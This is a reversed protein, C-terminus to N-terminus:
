LPNDAYDSEPQESPPDMWPLADGPEGTFEVGELAEAASTPQKDGGPSKRAGPKRRKDAKPEPHKISSPDMNTFSSQGGRFGLYATGLPGNRQKGIIIEAIGKYESDPNYVEDRYVFMIVDADQEIAGSDRLDSNVPRKNPRQELSRSLQSLVIIPIGLLKALAKLGRTIEALALTPNGAHLASFKMLQLYDIMILKLPTLKHQKIARSCLQELSIGPTDDIYIPAKKLRETGIQLRESDGRKLKGRRLDEFDINCISAVSRQFIAHDPMELSFVMVAENREVGTHEVLHMAFTTKGMSPRGGVIILDAPQLGALFEDLQEYGTPQGPAAKGSAREEFGILWRDFVEGYSKVTNAGSSLRENVERVGSAVKSIGDEVRGDFRLLEASSRQLHLVTDRRVALDRLEEAERTVSLPDPMAQLADYLFEEVFNLSAFRSLALASSVPNNLVREGKIWCYVQRASDHFFDGPEIIEAVSSFIDPNELLTAMLSRELPFARESFNAIGHPDAFSTM